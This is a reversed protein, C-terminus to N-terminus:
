SNSMLITSPQSNKIISKLKEITRKDAPPYCPVAIVGAYLCGFFARVLDLGPPYLLIAREGPQMFSQLKAAIIQSKSQLDPFTLKDVIHIDQNLFHLINKQQFKVSQSNILDVLTEFTKQPDPTM